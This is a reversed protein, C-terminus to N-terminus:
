RSLRLSLIWFQQITGFNGFYQLFKQNVWTCLHIKLLNESINESESHSSFSLVLYPIILSSFTFRYRLYNEDNLNKPYNDEDKNNNGCHKSRYTRQSEEPKQWVWSGVHFKLNLGKNFGRPDGARIRNVM